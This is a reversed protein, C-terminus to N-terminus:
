KDVTREARQLAAIALQFADRKREFDAKYEDNTVTSAARDYDDAFEQLVVAAEMDTM